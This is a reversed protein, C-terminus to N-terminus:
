SMLPVTAIERLADEAARDLDWARLADGMVPPQFGASWPLADPLRQAATYNAIAGDRRVAVVRPPRDALVLYFELDGNAAFLRTAAQAATRDTVPQDALEVAVRATPPLTPDGSGVPV